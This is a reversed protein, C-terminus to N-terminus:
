GPLSELKGVDKSIETGISAHPPDIQGFFEPTGQAGVRRLKRLGRQRGGPKTGRFLCGFPGLLM